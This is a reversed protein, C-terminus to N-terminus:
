SLISALQMVCQEFFDITKCRFKGQERLLKTGRRNFAHKDTITEEANFKSGGDREEEYWYNIRTMKITAKGDACQIEVWYNIRTRDLVFFRNAFVLYEEATVGLTANAEDDTVFKSVIVNPKSFRQQAWEDLRKYANAQGLLTPITKEFYVRGNVVPVNGKDYRAEVQAWGMMM